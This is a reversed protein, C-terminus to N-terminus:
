ELEPTAPGASEGADLAPVDSSGAEEAPAKAADVENVVPVGPIGEEPNISAKQKAFVALAISTAFFLVALWSTLRQLFSASGSAGFVTQSAGSGFAAGADAGKGHQILILAILGISLLVHVAVVLTEVFGM